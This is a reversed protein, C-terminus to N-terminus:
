LISRAACADDVVVGVDRECFVTATSLIKSPPGFFDFHAGDHPPELPSSKLYKRFGCIQCAEVSRIFLFHEVECVSLAYVAPNCSVISSITHLHVIIYLKVDHFRRPHFNYFFIWTLFVM